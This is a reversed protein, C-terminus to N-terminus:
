ASKRDRALQELIGSSIADLIRILIDPDLYPSRRLRGQIDAKLRELSDRAIQKSATEAEVYILTTRVPEPAPSVIYGADVGVAPPSVAAPFPGAVPIDQPPTAPAKPASMGPLEPVRYPVFRKRGDADEHLEVRARVKARRHAKFADEIITARPWLQEALAEVAPDDAVEEISRGVIREDVLANWAEQIQQRNM